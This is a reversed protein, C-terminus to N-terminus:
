DHIRLDFLLYDYLRLRFCNRLLNEDIKTHINFLLFFSYFNFIHIILSCSQSVFTQSIENRCLNKQFFKSTIFISKHFM